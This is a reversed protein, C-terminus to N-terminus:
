KHIKNVMEIGQKLAEATNSKLEKAMEPDIREIGPLNADISYKSSEMGAKLCHSAVYLDSELNPNSKGLLGYCLELAKASIQMVYLPTMAADISAKGILMDDKTKYAEMLAGFIVADEDVASILEQLMSEAKNRTVNCLAHWDEYKQHKLTLNAVMMILAVGSASTLASVGGGGPTPKDSKLADMFDRITKETM